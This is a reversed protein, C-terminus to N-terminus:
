RRYRRGLMMVGAATLLAMAGPSPIGNVASGSFSAESQWAATPLRSMSDIPVTTNNAGLNTM